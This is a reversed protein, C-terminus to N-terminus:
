ACPHGRSLPQLRTAGAPSGARAGFESDFPGSFSDQLHASSTAATVRLTLRHPEPFTARGTSPRPGRSARSSARRRGRSRGGLRPRAAAPARRRARARLGGRRAVPHSAQAPAPGRAPPRGRGHVGPLDRRRDLGARGTRGIRHIYDQPDFPLEFNVVHPLDEIDLGRAAVDTAVLVIVEGRKFAELARIREAQTRDSHIAEAAIGQRELWSPWGGRPSRPARSSSPRACTTAGSSTPWCSRRATATSRSSWSASRSPPRTARRSRSPRPTTCGSRPSGGSTTRSPPRSCCTRGGPAAPPRPDPPHRAPLGHGADPRGRRPRPGGGPGPERQAARRPGAPPRAHGRPDGRRRAAGTDPPRHRRRRLGGHLPRPLHRAYTRFSEEVQM